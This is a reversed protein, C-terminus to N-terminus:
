IVSKGSANLPINKTRPISLTKTIQGAPQKTARAVDVSSVTTSENAEQARALEHAIKAFSQLSRHAFEQLYNEANAKIHEKLTFCEDKLTKVENGAKEARIKLGEFYSESFLSKKSKKKDEYKRVDEDSKKKEECANEFRCVFPSFFPM